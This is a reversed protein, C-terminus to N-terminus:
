QTRYVKILIPEKWRRLALLHKEVRIIDNMRYPVIPTSRVFTALVAVELCGAVLKLEQNGYNIITCNKIVKREENLPQLTPRM